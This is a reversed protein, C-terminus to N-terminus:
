PTTNDTFEIVSQLMTILSALAANGGRSGSITLGMGHGIRESDRGNHNHNGPSAQNRKKGLTHHQANISSDKDSNTHFKNVDTTKPYPNGIPQKVRGFPDDENIPKPDIPVTM